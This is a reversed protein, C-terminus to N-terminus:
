RAAAPDRSRLCGRPPALYRAPAVSPPVTTAGGTLGADAKVARVGSYPEAAFTGPVRVGPRYWGLASQAASGGQLGLLNYNLQKALTAGSETTWVDSIEKQM